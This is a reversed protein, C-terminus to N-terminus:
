ARSYLERRVGFLTIGVTLAMIIINTVQEGGPSHILEYNQRSVGILAMRTVNVAVVSGCALLSWLLDIASWRHNLWQTISVWCLFAGSLNGFSTCAGTIVMYGSNDAFRVLNGTQETGLLLSVLVADAALIIPAFCQFILRSWLMPFTLALLILAGRRREPDGAAFWLIYLSLGTVAVWSVPFIPLTVLILFVGGAALDASRIQERNDNLLLSLGAFCAFFVIANMEIGNLIGSWGELSATYIMRGMLGNACGIIYLGAFFQNRPISALLGALPGRGPVTLQETNVSV